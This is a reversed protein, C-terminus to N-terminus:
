VHQSTESFTLQPYHGLMWSASALLGCLSFAPRRLRARLVMVVSPRLVSRFIWRQQQSSQGTTTVRRCSRHSVFRPHRKRGPAGQRCCCCCCTTWCVLVESEINECSWLQPYFTHHASLSHSTASSIVLKNAHKWFHALCALSSLISLDAISQPSRWSRM